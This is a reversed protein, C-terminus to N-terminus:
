HLPISEQLKGIVVFRGDEHTYECTALTIYKSANNLSEYLAGDNQAKEEIVSIDEPSTLKMSSILNEEAPGFSFAAAVSYTRLDVDSIFIITRHEDRYDKELFRPLSGFVSGNKMHHGQILLNCTDLDTSPSVYVSGYLSENGFFDTHLYKEPDANRMVVFSIDTGKILLKGYTDPNIEKLASIDVIESTDIIDKEVIVPNPETITYSSTLQSIKKITQEETEYETNRSLLLFICGGFVIASLVLLVTIITPGYQKM